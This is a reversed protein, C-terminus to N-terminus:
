LALSSVLVGAAASALVSRGFTLLKPEPGMEPAWLRDGVNWDASDFDREVAQSIAEVVGGLSLVRYADNQDVLPGGLLSKWDVVPEEGHTLYANVLVLDCDGSYRWESHEEVFRRMADFASPSFEPAGSAETLKRGDRMARWRSYGCFYLDWSEGSRADFYKKRATATDIVRSDPQAFVLAVVQCVVDDSTLLTAKERLRVLM